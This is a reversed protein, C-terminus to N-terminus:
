SYRGIRGRCCKFPRGYGWASVGKAAAPCCVWTLCMKNLVNILERALDTNRACPASKGLQM